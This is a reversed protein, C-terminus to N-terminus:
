TGIVRVFLWPDAVGVVKLPQVFLKVEAKRQLREASVILWAANENM